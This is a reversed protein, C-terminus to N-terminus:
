ACDAPDLGLQWLIQELEEVQGRYVAALNAWASRYRATLGSTSTEEASAAAARAMRYRHAALFRAQMAVEEDSVLSADLESLMRAADARLEPVSLAM